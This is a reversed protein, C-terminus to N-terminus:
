PEMSRKAQQKLVKVLQRYLKKQGASLDDRQEKSYITVLYIRDSEPVHLYIVRAGGRKGKGRSPDRIRLKRLGDCGPIVDGRDPSVQLERQLAAYEDDALFTTVWETFERTEIFLKNM